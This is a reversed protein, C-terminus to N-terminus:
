FTSLKNLQFNKRRQAPNKQVSCRSIFFTGLYFQRQFTSRFFALYNARSSVLISNFQETPKNLILKSIKKTDIQFKFLIQSENAMKHEAHRHYSIKNTKTEFM